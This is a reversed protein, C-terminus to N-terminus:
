GTGTKNDEIIKEFLKELRDIHKEWDCMLSAKYAAIAVQLRKTKSLGAFQVIYKLMDDESTYYPVVFGNVENEILEAAGNLTTTLVPLGCSCAELCVNACPEYLTPYFFLDSAVYYDRMNEKKGEFRVNEAIGLHGALSLFSAPNYGGLVILLVNRRFSEDLKAVGRIAWELGKSKFNAAAFMLVFKDAPINFSDRITKSENADRAPFFKFRDVGNRIVHIRSEPYNYLEIIQKKTLEANTVIAKVNETHYLKKELNLIGIHRPNLKQLSPYRINIWEFQISEAVRFVDCPFTRSLSYIFDFDEPQLVSQVKRHFAVTRSFSSFISRPVPHHCLNKSLEGDFSESFVTVEHGRDALGACVKAAYREAGGGTHDFDKKLVAIKM